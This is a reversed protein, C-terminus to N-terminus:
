ASPRARRWPWSLLSLIGFNVSMMLRTAAMFVVISASDQGLQELAAVWGGEQMGLGGPTIGVLGALQALPAAMVVVLGPLLVGFGAGAGWYQVLIGSFRLVGLAVIRGSLQVTVGPAQPLPLARDRTRLRRLWGYAWLALRVLPDLLPITAAVFVFVLIALSSWASLWPPLRQLHVVLAWGLLVLPLLLDLLRELVVPAILQGLRAQNGAAKLAAGRGIVDVLVTPLVQGIVRTLALYHFYIGYPLHSGGMMESLLKWRAATVLNAFASGLVSVMLWPVSLHIRDEIQDWSPAVWHIIGAFLAVGLALQAVGKAIARGHGRREPADASPDPETM